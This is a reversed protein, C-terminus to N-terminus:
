ELSSIYINQNVAFLSNNGSSSVFSSESSQSFVREQKDSEVETTAVAKRTGNLRRVRSNYFTTTCTFYLPVYQSSAYM